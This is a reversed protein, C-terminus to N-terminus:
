VSSRGGYAGSGRASRRGFTFWVLPGVVPLLILALSWLWKASISLHRSRPVEILAWVVVIINLFFLILISSERATPILPSDGAPAAFAATPSLLLASTALVIPGAAERVSGMRLFSRMVDDREPQTPWDPAQREPVVNLM